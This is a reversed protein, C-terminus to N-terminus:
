SCSRSCNPQIATSFHGCSSETIRIKGIILGPAAQITEEASLIFGLEPAFAPHTVQQHPDVLLFEKEQWSQNLQQVGEEPSLLGLNIETGAVTVAPLIHGHLVTQYSYLLATLLFADLILGFIIFYLAWKQSKRTLGWAPISGTQSRRGGLREFGKQGERFTPHAQLNM